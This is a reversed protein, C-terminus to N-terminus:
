VNNEVIPPLSSPQFNKKFVHKGNGFMRTYLLSMQQKINICEGCTDKFV